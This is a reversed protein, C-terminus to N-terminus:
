KHAERYFDDRLLRLYVNIKTDGVKNEPVIISPFSEFLKAGSLAFCIKETHDLYGRIHALVEYPLAYLPSRKVNIKYRREACSISSELQSM